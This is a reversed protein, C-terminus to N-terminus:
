RFSQCDLPVCDRCSRAGRYESASNWWVLSTIPSEGICFGVDHRYCKRSFAHAVDFGPTGSIKPTDSMSVAVVKESPLDSTQVVDRGPIRPVQKM